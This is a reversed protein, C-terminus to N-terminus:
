SASRRRSRAAPRPRRPEERRILRLARWIHEVWFHETGEVVAGDYFSSNFFLRANHSLVRFAEKLLAAKDADGFNHIGNGVVLFSATGGRLPLRQGLSQILRAPYSALKERALELDLGPRATPSSPKCNSATSRRTPRSARSGSSATDRRQHGRGRRQHGRGRGQDRRCRCGLCRHRSRRRGAPRSVDTAMTASMDGAAGAIAQAARGCPTARRSPACRVVGARELDTIQAATYGLLRRLVPATHQGLLPAAAAPAAHGARGPLGARWPATPTPIPGGSHDVEVLLGRALVQPHRAVQEVSNIPGAPVGARQLRELWAEGPRTLFLAELLPVLVERQRVRDGNTAFRPDAALDPREIADCFARWLRDNNVAVTVEISATRFAQYPVIYPLANGAPGPVRGSLICSVLHYGM